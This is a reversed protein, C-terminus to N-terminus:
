NAPARAPRSRSGRPPSPVAAGPAGAPHRDAPARTRRAARPGSRACLCSSAWSNGRGDPRPL